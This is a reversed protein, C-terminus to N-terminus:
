GYLDRIVDRFGGLRELSAKSPKGSEPDWEMALYWDHIMRDIDITRGKQPGAIPPPNGAARAPLVSDKPLIGERVNFAQRINLSRMSAAEREAEGFPLGTVAETIQMALDLNGIFKFFDCTGNIYALELALTAKRDFDASFSYKEEDPMSMTLYWPGPKVHRGPVPDTVYTRGYGPNYKPDHMPLEIGRVEVLYDFGRNLAKAAARSGNALVKGFGKNEAIAQTMAVIAPGNGWKLELGDTETATLLGNEFCEIAWAITAGTSITDLGYCNCLHNCKLVVEPDENKVLGGFAGWTEYEPRHSKGVPLDAGKIDYDAGCGLPCNSCAYRKYKYKGDIAGIELTEGKFDITGAGTWNKVPLDGSMVAYQNGMSTGQQGFGLLIGAEPGNKMLNTITRNLERLRADDAVPVKLTGRATVAKLNKSGMVAGVGGRGLARHKDNIIAAMWSINEGPPGIVCSSVKADGLEQAILDETEPCDRGWLHSADRLEAHGDKLWLYVPKNAKGKILIVDYGAKKMEPGFKGGCNADNWGNNVPSKCVVSFRGGFLAGTGTLPGTVFGFIAEPSLPDVGAKMRSYLLRAGLGYTGIFLRADEEGLTEETITRTTLDVNLIKGNYGGIM